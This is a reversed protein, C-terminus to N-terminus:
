GNEKEALKEKTHLKEEEKERCKILVGKRM